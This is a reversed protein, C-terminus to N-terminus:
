FMFYRCVAGRNIIRGLEARCRGCSRSPDATWDTGVQKKIKIMYKYNYENEYYDYEDCNYAELSTPLGTRGLRTKIKIM